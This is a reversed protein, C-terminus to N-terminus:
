LEKEEVARVVVPAPASESSGSPMEEGGSSPMEGPVFGGEEGSGPSPM